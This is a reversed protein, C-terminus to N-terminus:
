GPYFSKVFENIEEISENGLITLYQNIRVFQFNSIMQGLISQSNIGLRNVINKDQRVSVQVNALAKGLIKQLISQKESM